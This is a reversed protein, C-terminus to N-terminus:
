LSRVCRGYYNDNSTVLMGTEFDLAYHHLVDVDDSTWYIQGNFNVLADSMSYIAYLETRTPLRWDSYGGVLSGTCIYNSIDWEGPGNNQSQVSLGIIDYDVFEAEVKITSGYAIAMESKIYPRIFFPPAFHWEDYEIEYLVSVTDQLQLIQRDLFYPESAVQFGKEYYSPYGKSLVVASLKVSENMYDLDSIGVTVVEPASPEVADITVTSSIVMSDCGVTIAGIIFLIALLKMRTGKKM